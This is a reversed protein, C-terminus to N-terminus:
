RRYRNRRASREIPDSIQKRLILIGGFGYARSNFDRLLANYREIRHLLPKAM